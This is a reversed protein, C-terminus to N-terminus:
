NSLRKICAIKNKLITNVNTDPQQIVVNSQRTHQNVNMTISGIRMKNSLHSGSGQNLNDILTGGLYGHANTKQIVCPCAHRVLYSIVLNNPLVKYPSLSATVADHPINISLIGSTLPLGSMNVALRKNSSDTAYASLSKRTTIHNNNTFTVYKTTDVKINEYFTIVIQTPLGEIFLEGSLAPLISDVIPPLRLKYTFSLDTTLHVMGQYSRILNYPITIQLPGSVLQIASLNITLIKNDIQLAKVDVPTTLMHNTIQLSIEPRITFNESFTIKLPTQNTNIISNRSPDISTVRPPVYVNYTFSLDTTSTVDQLSRILTNPINIQLSGSVHGSASLDITLTKKDIPVVKVDFALNTGNNTIQLSSDPNLSIDERFTIKIPTQNSYFYIPRNIAPDISSFTPPMWEEYDFSLDTTLPVGYSKTKILNKPITIQLPGSVFQIASLDITLINNDIQLEKAGVTFTTSNNPSYIFPSNTIQLSIDSNLSIDESFTIKLPTQTTTISSGSFNRPDISTVIPPLQVTYVFSLDTTSTVDQLSKILTNPITIQLPGSNASLDITLTKNNIHLANAYVPTTTTNNTIQLSIDPNLSIDERFTIKLPTQNTNIIGPNTSPDISSFIPPMWEEYDFSLDATLYVGYSKTKILNKPITIQLPGSVFQIASLDITLINNDIQLEKAGVTFTTSNNPSYIFPSNTIQLSIDSNLSIDESFTIKLPTQTTTISSDLFNPPDISSYIPPMLDKYDFSLDATLYAGYSKTKILNYPITIQLSGSVLLIASLDITLINTEIHLVTADVIFTNNNNTIQLSIDPNLSIDESFTIKIPTQNPNILSNRSIDISKFIPPMQANYTFSLDTTLPVDLVSNILNNPINIQLSGSVLQIASLDITLTKNDIQLANAYVPTTTTNNTIQLSSDRNLSIDESFIIKLPIQNTNIIGPNTSPDISSYIPPMWDVYDFSLDTTLYVGYSKTKILNKPITIQLPGSVLQIASLDITLTKNEIHLVKADVARPTGNNTIQLSIDPNLSIDESFTIKLPTQTTIISSNRSIDISKYIPPPPITYVFSLDTTLPVGHLSKILNNPINIKLSGPALGVASLDITLTNNNNIYLANSHGQLFGEFRNGNNIIPLLISSNLSIDESFTIKLPTQNPNIISNIAPYISEYIPPPYVNFVITMNRPQTAFLITGTHLGSLLTLNDTSQVTGFTLSLDLTNQSSDYRKVTYSYRNTDVTWNNSLDATSYTSKSTITPDFPALIINSSNLHTNQNIPYVNESLSFTISPFSMLYSSITLKNGETSYSIDVGDVAIKIVPDPLWNVHMASYNYTYDLTLRSDWRPDTLGLNSKPITITLPGKELPLDSLKRINLQNPGVWGHFRVFYIYLKKSLDLTLHWVRSSHPPFTIIDTAKISKLTTLHNQVIKDSTGKLIAWDGGTNVEPGNIVVKNSEDKLTWNKIVGTSPAYMYTPFTFGDLTVVEPFTFTLTIEGVHPQPRSQWNGFLFSQANITDVSSTVTLGKVSEDILSVKHADSYNSGALQGNNNDGVLFKSPIGVMGHFRVFYIYLKHTLDLTLYWIRSSHQPITIIDEATIAGKTDPTLTTIADPTGTLIAASPDYVTGGNIIVTNSEDKLSWNKIEGVLGGTYTAFTFGDLTVVKPFTFTLIIPGSHSPANMDWNTLIDQIDHHITPVNSTITLGSVDPDVLSTKDSPLTPAHLPPQNLSTTGSNDGVLFKTTTTTTYTKSFYSHSLDIIRTNNLITSHSADTLVFDQNFDISLNSQNTITAHLSPDYNTIELIDVNYTFTIENSLLRYDFDWDSYVRVFTNPITIKFSGPVLQISTIDLRLITNLALSSVKHLSVNNQYLSTISGGHTITLPPGPPQIWPLQIPNLFTIDITSQTPNTITAPNVPNSVYTSWVM